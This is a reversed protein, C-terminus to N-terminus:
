SRWSAAAATPMAPVSASPMWSPGRPECRGGLGGGHGGGGRRPRRRRGADGAARGPPRAAPGRAPLVGRGDPRRDGGPRRPRMRGLPLRAIARRGLHAARRGPRRARPGRCAATALREDSWAQEPVELEAEVHAEQGHPGVLGAGPAAGTVLGIAQALMTKGAGTEGTLVNLGPAFELEAAEIPGPERDSAVAADTRSRRGAPSFFSTGAGRALTASRDGLGVTVREGPALDGQRHGDVIAQLPVDPSANCLEVQHPRGLVMSRAHLSHPSVFSVVFADIGWAIM